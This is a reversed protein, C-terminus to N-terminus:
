SSVRKWSLLEHIFCTEHAAGKHGIRIVGIRMFESYMALETLFAPDESIDAAAIYGENGWLITRAFADSMVSPINDSTLEPVVVCAIVRSPLCWQSELVEMEKVSSLLDRSLQAGIIDPMHRTYMCSKSPPPLPVQVSFNQSRLFSVLPPLLETLSQPSPAGQIARTLMKKTM